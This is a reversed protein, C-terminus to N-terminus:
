ANKKKKRGSPSAKPAKDEPEGAPVHYFEQRLNLITLIATSYETSTAERMIDIDKVPVEEKEYYATICAIIAMITRKVDPDRNQQSCDVVHQVYDHIDEDALEKYAIETAFCYGLTVPKGCLTIEKQIM